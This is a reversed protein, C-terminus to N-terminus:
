PFIISSVGWEEWKGLSEFSCGSRLTFEQRKYVDLHTYSVSIGGNQYFNLYNDNGLAISASSGINTYGKLAELHTYSVPTHKRGATRGAQRTRRRWRPLSTRLPISRPHWTTGTVSLTGSWTLMSRYSIGQKCGVYAPLHTYSVPVIGDIIEGNRKTIRVSQGKKFKVEM